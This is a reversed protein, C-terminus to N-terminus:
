LDLVLRSGKCGSCCIMINKGASRAFEDLYNDRHDPEGALVGTECSGCIGVRCDSDVAVGHLELVQLITQGAVVDLVLGSRVLELVFGEMTGEAEFREHHLRVPPRDSAAEMFAALLPAPGCIYFDSDMPASAVLASLNPRAGARSRTFYVRGTGHISQQLFPAIESLFPARREDQAVYHLEWSRESAELAQAMSWIPTIGIGGAVLVSHGPQAALAFGNRPRRVRLRTGVEVRDHMWVSGRGGDIRKVALRYSDKESPANVLSYSRGVGGADVTVHSGPSGPLLPEGLPAALEFVKVGPIDTVVSSVILERWEKDTASAQEALIGGEANGEM